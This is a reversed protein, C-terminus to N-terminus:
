TMSLSFLPHLLLFGFVKFSTFCPNTTNKRLCVYKYKSSRVQGAEIYIM